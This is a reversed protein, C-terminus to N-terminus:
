HAGPDGQRSYRGNMFRDFFQGLAPHEIQEGRPDPELHREAVYTSHSYGDVLVHYWPQDKPPRSRAVTEYWEDSGAYVPDVDVIVGRYDFKTHHVLEGVTFRTRTTM